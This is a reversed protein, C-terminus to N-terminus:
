VLPTVSGVKNAVLHEQKNQVSEGPILVKSVYYVQHSTILNDGLTSCDLANITTILKQNLDGLQYKINSSLAFNLHSM